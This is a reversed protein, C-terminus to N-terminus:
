EGSLQLPRYNENNVFSTDTLTQLFALLGAKQRPNLGLPFVNASRNEAYQGGSNYHDVVEALTKMRGDHMYPATLAINRLTPTRFVGRDFPNETIAGRGADDFDALDHALDLGNNFFRQNTFHPPTHCHACEGTPLNAFAGDPDDALDFFIAYGLAELEDYTDVGREVRDYKSDGSILSRQFQALAKGVHDPSLEKKATLGFAEQLRPWYDAHQRLKSVVLPWSGGMENAEAIPHLAQAELNDARGDWFLTEYLYGVNTLGPANRRGVRGYIGISKELGDTFAREPQHCTGCSITSDASLIPDFFLDRGLALGARTTPNDSPYIISAFAEPEPILVPEEAPQCATLLLLLAAIFVSVEGGAGKAACSRRLVRRTQESTWVAREESSLPSGEIFIKKFSSFLRYLCHCFAVVITFYPHIGELRM